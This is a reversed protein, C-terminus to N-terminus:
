ILHVACVTEGFVGRFDLFFYSKLWFDTLSFYPETALINVRAVWVNFDGVVILTVSQKTQKDMFATMEESFRKMPVEQKRYLCIILLKRGSKLTLTVNAYEFSEFLKRKKHNKEVIHIM